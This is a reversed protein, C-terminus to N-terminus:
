RPQPPQANPHNKSITVNMGTNQVLTVFTSGRKGLQKIELTVRDGNKRNLFIRNLESGEGFTGPVIGELEAMSNEQVTKVYMALVQDTNKDKWLEIGIGFCLLHKDNVVFKQMQVPPHNDPAPDASAARAALASLLALAILGTQTRRRFLRRVVLAIEYLLVSLIPFSL